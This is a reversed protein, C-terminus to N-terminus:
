VPLNVTGDAARELPVASVVADITLVGYIHPFLQGDRSPEWRVADGLRSLDVTALVLGTVGSFHKELTVTLQSACSLHIYGDSIDAPTGRFSGDRQMQELDTASMVKYAIRDPMAGASRERTQQPCFRDPLSTGSYMASVLLAHAALVSAIEIMAGPNRSLLLALKSPACEAAFGGQV